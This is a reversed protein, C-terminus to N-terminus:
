SNDVPANPAIEWRNFRQYLATRLRVQRALDPRDTEKPLLGFIDAHAQNNAIGEVGQVPSHIVSLEDIERVQGAVMKIVAYKEPRGQRSRTQAATSYKSWDTSISGRNERFLGPAIKLDTGLWGVSVRYYLSDSDPIDEIQWTEM